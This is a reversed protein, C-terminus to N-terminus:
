YIHGMIIVTVVTNVVYFIVRIFYICYIVNTIHASTQTVFCTKCFMINFLYASEINPMTTISSPFNDKYLYIFLYIFLYTFLYIFFGM